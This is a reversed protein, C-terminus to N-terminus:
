RDEVAIPREERATRVVEALATIEAEITEREEKMEKRREEQEELIAARRRWAAALAQGRAIREEPTLDIYEVTLSMQDPM